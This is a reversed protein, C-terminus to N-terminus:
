GTKQIIRIIEEEFNESFQANVAVSNGFRNRFWTLQRKAFSRTAQQVAAIADRLPLENRVAAGLEAMGLAKMAPLSPDLRRNVLAEVEQLAGEEIMATFRADCRAYLWDRPPNLWFSQTEFPPPEPPLKQWESLPKGTAEYVALARVLRQRDNPSVRAALVPDAATVAHFLWELGEQKAQQAVSQTKDPPVDPIPSLGRTLAEIYFGTGGAIIPRKGAAYAQEITAVAEERWRGASYRESADVHGYLRHPAAQEDAASPRATLIRLDRYVQMSDANIVVGDLATALQLALASKGSATPGAIVIVPPNNSGTM